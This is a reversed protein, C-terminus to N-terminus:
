CSIGRPVKVWKDFTFTLGNSQVPASQEVLWWDKTASLNPFRRDAEVQLNFQTVYAVSCYSLTLEYIAQGGIIFIDATDYQHLQVLLNRLSSCVTAGDIQLGAKGSLVINTRGELPKQNPLSRFIKEGMVVVKGITMSKFFRMDEPVHFLLNNRYGIGWNKDVSVIANIRVM